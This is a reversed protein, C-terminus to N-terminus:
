GNASPGRPGPSPGLNDERALEERAAALAENMRRFKRVAIVVMAVLVPILVGQRYWEERYGFVFPWLSAIGLILIVQEVLEVREM